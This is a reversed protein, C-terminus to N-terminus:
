HCAMFALQFLKDNELGSKRRAEIENINLTLLGKYYRYRKAINLLEDKLAKKKELKGMNFDRINAKLNKAQQFFSLPSVENVCYTNSDEETLLSINFKCTTFVMKEEELHIIYLAKDNDTLKDSMADQLADGSAGTYRLTDNFQKFTFLLDIEKLENNLRAKAKVSVLDSDDFIVQTLQLAQVEEKEQIFTHTM